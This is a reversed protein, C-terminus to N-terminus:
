AETPPLHPRAGDLTLPLTFHFIVGQASGPRNEAWMAGGHAEIIGKCVSLGLGTGMVKDAHTVRYFKDFIRPLDDVPLAPSDNEVSVVLLADDQKRASIRVTTGAPAYKISNTILNTFVQGLQVPDVPMLPVDGPIDIQLTHGRTEARLRQAAEDVVEALDTWERDPKLAGSEIRTMDLLNDVLKTLHQSAAVVDDLMERGAESAPPVVGDRLSEAGARITALPTRLEHSVSGLLATKLRDSEELVKARTEAQAARLRELVLATQGAYTEILREEGLTLRESRWVRIDGFDGRASQIPEIHAPRAAALAIDPAVARTEGGPADPRVHVEIVAELVERLRKALMRAIEGTDRTGLLALSIEYFRAADRERQAAEIARRQARGLLRSNVLAVMLFIALVALDDAHGVLLTGRPEIFFFNFGLFSAVAALIGAPLGTLLTVLNIALLYVLVVLPLSFLGPLGTQAVVLASTVAIVVAIAIAHRQALDTLTSRRMSAADHYSM